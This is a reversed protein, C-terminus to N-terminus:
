LSCRMSRALPSAALNLLVSASYLFACRTVRSRMYRSVMSRIRLLTSFFTTMSLSKALRRVAAAEARRLRRQRLLPLCIAIDRPM